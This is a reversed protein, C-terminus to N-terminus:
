NLSWSHNYVFQIPGLPAYYALPHELQAITNALRALDMLNLQCPNILNHRIPLILCVESTSFPVIYKPQHIHAAM